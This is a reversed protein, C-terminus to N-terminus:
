IVVGTKAYRKGVTTMITSDIRAADMPESLKLNFSHVARSVEILPLGSDVLALAFKIMQNNRNGTAIRQAFWRELNDLDKVGKFEKRYAENISTKPIFPLIDFLEAGVDNIHYSGTDCTLWKKSRQKSADDIEVDTIKFPLWAIVDSVLESYDKKDLELVYNIPIILRFRNETETSRKTDCTMFKTESLLDHVVKVPIGGDVDLILMNFGPITNEECRHNLKFAHNCYNLGPQQTLLHLQDFALHPDSPEYNYAWHESYTFMMKSLDTELLKEGKFFEIGDNFTKKIIVNNKYGWAMALNLMDNRPAQSKPYYTVGSMLDAHTVEENCDAIYKALKVYTKERKLITQLSAGSEEVLLIAQMLHDLEIENSKDVFAYAGAVKLAKFYRHTLEVKQMELHEPMEAAMLDCEVKYEMLRIGVEREVVMKWGFFGIDALDHFHNAFKAVQADNQPAILRDYIEEGTQVHAAGSKPPGFGFLCRRAYGIELMSYFENEIAGGDFLKSPTGFLLMNTPTKGELEEFRVNDNTNKTLKAKVRGQDYLELFLTLMDTVGLLNSGIEDIQLSLAGCNAMILKNRFQKVGETTGEAFTYIFAGTRAYEKSVKEFEEAPDSNKRVARENALVWHNKESIIPLTDEIFRKKFGKMIEEEMIGVSFGKGFGSNALAIAYVNVPIDGRDLTVITAGMSSAMKAMFYAVECRFFGRDTNQTKNCLVEVIEELIPNHTVGTLDIM